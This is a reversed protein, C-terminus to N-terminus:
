RSRVMGGQVIKEAQEITNEKYGAKQWDKFLKQAEPSFKTVDSGGGGGQGGGQNAMSSNMEEATREMHEKDKKAQILNRANLFAYTSVLDDYILEADFKGSDFKKFSESIKERDEVSSVEFETFFRNQAKTIQEARIKKETDQQGGGGENGKDELRKKEKRIAGVAEIQKAKVKKIQDPSFKDLQEPTLKDVQESTLKDVMEDSVSGENLAKELEDMNQSIHPSWM